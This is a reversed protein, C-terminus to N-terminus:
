PLWRELSLMLSFALLVLLSTGFVQKAWRINDKATFGKASIYLWFLTVAAMVVTFSWGAYGFSKFLMVSFLYASIYFFIYTKAARIGKVVPLIPIGAAKYDDRRYVGIAYFHPMQWISQAVFLLVAPGDFRNTVACYGALLSMSGSITGVLTGHISTRKFYGYLVVYAFFGGAGILTTLRNTFLTLVAFGAAGLISAYTLAAANSVTGRVLARKKTRSMLADIDQDIYNNLVCSSAIILGTGLLAWGLKHWDVWTTSAFLFGAVLTMLNGRIIGPKTLRYYIKFKKLM